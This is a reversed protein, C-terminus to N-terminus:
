GQDDADVIEDHEPAAKKSDALKTAPEPPKKGTFEAITPSPAVGAGVAAQAARVDAVSRDIGRQVTTADAPATEESPGSQSNCAALGMALLLPLPTLARIM